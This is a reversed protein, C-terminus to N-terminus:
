VQIRLFNITQSNLLACVTNQDFGGSNQGRGSQKYVKKRELEVHKTKFGSLGSLAVETFMTVPDDRSFLRQPVADRFFVKGGLLEDIALLEEILCLVKHVRGMGVNPNKRPQAEAPRACITVAATLEHTGFDQWTWSINNQLLGRSCRVRVIRRGEEKHHDRLKPLLPHSTSTRGGASCTVDCDRSQTETGSLFELM